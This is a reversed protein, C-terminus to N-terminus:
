GIDQILARNYHSLDICVTQTCNISLTDRDLVDEKEEKKEEIQKNKSSLVDFNDIISDLTSLVSM